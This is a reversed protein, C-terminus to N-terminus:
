TLRAPSGFAFNLNVRPLVLTDVRTYISLPHTMLPTIVDASYHASRIFLRIYHGIAILSCPHHHTILNM